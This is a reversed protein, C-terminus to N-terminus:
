KAGGEGSLVEGYIRAAAEVSGRVGRSSKTAGSIMDLGRVDKETFAQPLGKFQELFGAETQIRTGLGPTENMSLITIGVVSGDRDLGLVLTIPGGYGRSALKLGWGLFGDAGEAEYVAIADAPEAAARVRELVDDPVAAFATTGPLVASLASEEAAREQEAILPSTVAYTAALGGGAVVCTVLMAIVLRVSEHKM